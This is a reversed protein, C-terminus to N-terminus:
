VSVEKRKARWMSRANWDRDIEANQQHLQELIYEDLCEQRHSEFIELKQQLGICEERISTCKKQLALLEEQKRFIANKLTLLFELASQHVSVNVHSQWSTMALSAQDQERQKLDDIIQACSQEGQQAKALEIELLDLRWQTQKQIPDLQYTFGRLDVSASM